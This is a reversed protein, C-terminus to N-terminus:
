DNAKPKGRGLLLSSPDQQITQVLANVSDVTETLSDLSDRVSHEINDTEHIVAEGMEAVLAVTGDLKKTFDAINAIARKLDAQVSAFDVPELKEQATEIFANAGEVTKGVDEVLYRLDKGLQTYENIARQASLTLETAVTETHGIFEDSRNILAKVDVVVDTLAGSKMGETAVRASEAIEAVDDMVGDLKFLLNELSNTFSIIVSKEVPILSDPSLVETGEGGRLEIAMTGAVPSFWVLTAVVGERLTVKEDQVSIHVRAVGQENVYIDAVSGVPVGLYEVMSGKSLGLISDEFEVWYETEIATSVGKILFLGGASLAVCVLLFLGVKTKQAKTAM